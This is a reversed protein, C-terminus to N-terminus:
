LFDYPSLKPKDKLLDILTTNRLPEYLKIRSNIYALDGLIILKKKARTIATYILKRKLMISYSNLIPFIVNEYESGQAKHVSIVYALTLNDLDNKTYKVIRKAFSVLISTEDIDIVYGIDGNTIGRELDNQLQLVRDNVYYVQDKYTFSKEKKPNYNQQIFKNIEDIGQPGNYIPIIVQMNELTNGKALYNDLLIKIRTKISTNTLTYIYVEKKNQFISPSIEEKLVMNALKIIDSDKVQRMVEKLRYTKFMKSAIIDHLFEGPGVSPLQNEDGIFIVKAKYNIADLLRFALEIDIMSAEDIIILKYPLLNNKNFTFFGNYDYGLGKHITYANINCTEALRKAARGTPALLLIDKNEEQKNIKLYLKIIAKVITTKGTGPGGTIISVKENLITLITDKQTKTYTFDLEKEIDLLAHELIQEDYKLYATEKILKLNNAVSVEANYLNNPYIKNSIEKLNNHSKLYNIADIILTDNLDLYSIVSKILDEKLIYTNGDKYCLDLLCYLIAERIRIPNDKKFGLNLALADAKKFGYGDVEYILRYPNEKIINLTMLGYNDFLKKAMRPTLGYNYLELYIKDEDSNAKVIQYILDKKNQSLGKVKDLNHKDLSILNLADLGLTDVIKLATKEGIGVFKNSSLYTVLGMKTDVDKKYSMAKFQRGYKPHTIYDGSFQYSLGEELNNFNGCVVVNTKTVEVVIVKYNSNPSRYIEQKYIGKLDM